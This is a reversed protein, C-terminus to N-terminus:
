LGLGTRPLLGGVLPVQLGTTGTNPLQTPPLTVPGSGPGAPVTQVAGEGPLKVKPPKVKAKPPKAKVKPPTADAKPAKKVLKEVQGPAQKVTNGLDKVVGGADGKGLSDVTTAPM